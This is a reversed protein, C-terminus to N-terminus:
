SAAAAKRDLGELIMELVKWQKPEQKNLVGLCEGMAFRQHLEEIGVSSLILIRKCDVGRQKAYELLKQGDLIPMELDLILLALDQGLLSLGKVPDSCTTLRLRPFREQMWAAMQRCFLPDDDILLIEPM